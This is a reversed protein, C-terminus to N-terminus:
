LFCVSLAVHHIISCLFVSLNGPVSAGGGRGGSVANMNSSMWFFKASCMMYSSLKLLSAITNPLSVRRSSFSVFNHSLSALCNRLSSLLASTHYVSLHKSLMCNCSIFLSIPSLGQQLFSVYTPFVVLVLSLPNNITVDIRAENTQLRHQKRASTM